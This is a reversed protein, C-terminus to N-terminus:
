HNETGEVKRISTSTTVTDERRRRKGRTAIM